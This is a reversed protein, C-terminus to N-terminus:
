NGSYRIKLRSFAFNEIVVSVSEHLGFRWTSAYHETGIYMVNVAEIARLTSIVDNVKVKPVIVDFSATLTNDRKIPNTNGFADPKTGL